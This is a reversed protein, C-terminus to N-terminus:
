EGASNGTIIHYRLGSEFRCGGVLCQKQPLQTEMQAVGANAAQMCAALTRKRVRHHVVWSDYRAASRILSGLEVLANFDTAAIPPTKHIM